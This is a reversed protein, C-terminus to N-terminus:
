ILFQYIHRLIDLPIRSLKNNYYVLLLERCQLWKKEQIPRISYHTIQNNSIELKYNYPRIQNLWQAVKSHSKECACLFAQDYDILINKNIQYLYQIVLLNGFRCAQCFGFEYVEYINIKPHMKYLWKIIDLYGNQCSMIFALEDHNYNYMLYSSDHPKTKYLWKIINLHGKECAVSYALEKDQISINISSDYYLRQAYKINGNFCNQLFEQTKLRNM